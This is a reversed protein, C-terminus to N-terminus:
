TKNENLETGILLKIKRRKKQKKNKLKVVGTWAAYRHYGDILKYKGDQKIAVGHCSPPYNAYGMADLKNIRELAKENIIVDKLSVKEISWSMPKDIKPIIYGYELNLTMKVRDDLSPLRNYAEIIKQFKKCDSSNLDFSVKDIEDGYYGASWSIEFADNGLNHQVLKEVLYKEVPNADSSILDSAIISHDIEKVWAHTIYEDNAHYSEDSGPNILESNYDVEVGAYHFNNGPELVINALKEM